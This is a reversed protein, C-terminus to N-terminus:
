KGMKRFCWAVEQPTAFEVFAIDEHCDRSDRSPPVRQILVDCIHPLPDVAFKVFDEV